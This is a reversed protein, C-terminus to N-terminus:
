EPDKHLQPQSLKAVRGVHRDGAFPTALFTALADKATDFSAGM